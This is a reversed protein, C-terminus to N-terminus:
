SLVGIIFGFIIFILIFLLCRAFMLADSWRAYAMAAIHKLASKDEVDALEKLMERYRGM